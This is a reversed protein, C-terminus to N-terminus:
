SNAEEYLFSIKRFIEAFDIECKDGFIAVPVKSDFGYIKDIGGKAFNHVIIIKKDPDVIWYEKVGANRYKALKVM